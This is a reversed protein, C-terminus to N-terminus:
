SISYKTSRSRGVKVILNREELSHLIGRIQGYSFGTQKELEARSLMRNERLLELVAKQDQELLQDDTFVPLVVTITNPSFRFGPYIDKNRYEEKIRSIGSGLREILGLRLFVYALNMNRPVSIDDGLYEEETIGEPLGGPSSIELRDDYMKILIRSPRSWDRHVLANLIGERFANVPISDFIEREKGTIRELRYQEEFIMQAQNFLDLLSANELSRRLKIENITKGYRVIDIGPFDNQDSLLLAANTYGYEPKLIGLTKKSDSGPHKLGLSSMLYQDLTTFTLNQSDAPLDDFSLNKRKLILSELLHYGMEVSSSDNRIYAKSEFYYPKYAGEEVCLKITGTKEDITLSYVPVPQLSDNIKNEIRLADAKTNKLGIIRLDDAIGFIVTGGQGNAFASVTKLFSDTVKEKYELESSEREM